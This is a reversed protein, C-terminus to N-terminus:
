KFLVYAAAYIFFFRSMEENNNKNEPIERKVFM